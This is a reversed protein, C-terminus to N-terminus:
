DEPRKVRQFTVIDSIEEEFASLQGATQRAMADALWTAAATKDKRSTGDTGFQHLCFARFLKAPVRVQIMEVLGKSRERHARVRERSIRRKKQEETESAM